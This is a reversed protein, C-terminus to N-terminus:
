FYLGTEFYFYDVDDGDSGGNFELGNAANFNGDKLGDGVFLHDWGVSFYLDERYHYTVALNSEFGLSADTDRTWFPIFPVVPRAFTEDALYYGLDMAVEVSEVPLLNAGTRFVFVNSLDTGDLVASYSWNSFLRNFSVSANRTYYPDAFSALWDFATIDRKDNGELWAFSFFVRPEWKRPLTYGVELNAGFNGYEAENDGYFVPRFLSGAHGAEGFQYALEAEFDLPGRFGSARLGVTHLQSGHYNDVGRRDELSELIRGFQSDNVASADRVYMWYADLILDPIGTYSGYVGYFDVDGDAEAGGDDFLKAGWLDLSFDNKAYTLRIGDFSLGWAPAPGGDNGGVLWESGLRLEQRGLRARVPYGFLDRAEVYAQYLNVTGGGPQDLGTVYNSRFSSGWETLNDFEIVVGVDDTFGAEIGLRTWQSVVAVDGGRRDFAFASFISEGLGTGTPRGTLYSAPIRLDNPGPDVNTYYEGLIVIQGGVKVDQLEARSTTGICAMCVLVTAFYGYRKM